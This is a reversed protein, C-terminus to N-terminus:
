RGLGTLGWGGWRLGICVGKEAWVLSDGDREAWEWAKCELLAKRGAHELEHEDWYAGSGVPHNVDAYAFKRLVWGQPLNKVFVTCARHPGVEAEITWGERLLKPFYV